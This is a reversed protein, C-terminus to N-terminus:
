WRRRCTSSSSSAADSGRRRRRIGVPKLEPQAPLAGFVRDLMTKVTEADIDGVVAVKLNARALVRRTYDKLDDARSRRCRNWRAASRAAM